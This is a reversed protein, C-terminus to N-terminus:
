VVERNKRQIFNEPSAGLLAQFEDIMHAQDYYGNSQALAAWGLQWGQDMQAVAKTVRFIRALKKPGMGVQQVMIKRLYRDSIGFKSAISTISPHDEQHEFWQISQPVIPHIIQSQKLKAKLLHSLLDTCGELNNNIAAETMKQRLVEGDDGWLESLHIARDALDKVPFPLWPFAGGPWFRYTINVLREKRDIEEYINRPGVWVLRSRYQNNRRMLTFIIYSSGDPMIHWPITGPIFTHTLFSQINQLYPRLLQPVPLHTVEYLQCTSYNTSSSEMNRCLGKPRKIVM